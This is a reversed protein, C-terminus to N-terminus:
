RLQKRLDKFLELMFTQESIIHKVLEQWAKNATGVNLLQPYFNLAHIDHLIFQDILNKIEIIHNAYLTPSGEVSKKLYVVNNYLELFMKNIDNLNDVMVKTLNVNSLSAVTTLFSPHEESIHTWLQLENFVCAFQNIHTYCYM